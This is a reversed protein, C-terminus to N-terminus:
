GLITTRLPGCTTCTLSNGPTTSGMSPTPFYGDLMTKAFDVDVAQYYNRHGTLNTTLVEPSEAADTFENDTFHRWFSMPVQNVEENHLAKLVTERNLSM